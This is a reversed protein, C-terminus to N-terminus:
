AAYVTRADTYDNENLHSDLARGLTLVLAKSTNTCRLVFDIRNRM